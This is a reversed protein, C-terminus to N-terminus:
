VKQAALQMYVKPLAKTLQGCNNYAFYKRGYRNGNFNPWM